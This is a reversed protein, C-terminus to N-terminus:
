TRSRQWLTAAAVERGALMQRPLAAAVAAKLAAEGDRPGETQTQGLM